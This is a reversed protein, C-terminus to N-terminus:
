FPPLNEFTFGLKELRRSEAQAKNWYCSYPIVKLMFDGLKEYKKNSDKLGQIKEFEIKDFPIIYIGNKMKRM